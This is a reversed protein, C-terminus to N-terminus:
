RRRSGSRTAVDAGTSDPSAGSAGVDDYNSESHLHIHFDGSTISKIRWLFLRLNWFIERNHRRLTSRAQRSSLSPTRGFVPRCGGHACKM